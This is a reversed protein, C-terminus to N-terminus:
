YALETKLWWECAKVWGDEPVNLNKIDNKYPNFDEREPTRLKIFGDQVTTLQSLLYGGTTPRGDIDYTDHACDSMFVLLCLGLFLIRLKTFMKLLRKYFINLTWWM